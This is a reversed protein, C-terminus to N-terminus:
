SAAPPEKTVVSAMAAARYRGTRFHLNIGHKDIFYFDVDLGSVAAVPRHREVTFFVDRRAPRVAAVAAVAAGDDELHVVVEGRQHIEAVFAFVLGRVALVTLTRAAGALAPFVQDDLNRAAGDDLVRLGFGDDLIHGVHVFEDQALASAAAPAILVEGGRGSLDRVKGLGTQGALLVLDNQLELEQCVHTQHAEGVHAFGGQEAHGGVGVRLDGVVVEGGEVRVQAHDVHVLADAEDHCVDGADDLARRVARTQPMVEQPVDVAAAQDDM